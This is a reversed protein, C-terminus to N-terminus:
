RVTRIARAFHSANSYGVQNAVDIVSTRDQKLLKAAHAMRVTRLYSFVTKGHIAKFATKLKHENIAGFACLESFSYEYSPNNEIQETIKQISDCDNASVVTKSTTNTNDQQKLVEAIWALANAEISLRKQLNQEGSLTLNNSYQLAQPQMKASAFFDTSLSESTQQYLTHLKPIM